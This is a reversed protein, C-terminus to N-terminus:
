EDWGIVHRWGETGLTDENDLEDLWIILERLAKKAGEESLLDVERSNM